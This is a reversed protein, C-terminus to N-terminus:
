STFLDTDIVLTAALIMMKQEASTNEKYQVAFSQRLTLYEGATPFKRQIKGIEATGGRNLIYFTWPRWLPGRITALLRGHGNYLKYLRTLLNFHRKVYALILGNKDRVSTESLIIYFSKKLKFIINKDADSVSISVARRSRLYNKQLWYPILSPVTDESAFGLTKKHNKIEYQNRAVRTAHRSWKSLAGTGSDNGDSDMLQKVEFSLVNNIFANAPTNFAM